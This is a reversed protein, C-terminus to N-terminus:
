PLEEAPVVEDATVEPVDAGATDVLIALDTLPLGDSPLDDSFVVFDSLVVRSVVVRAVVM